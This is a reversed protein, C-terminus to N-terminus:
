KGIGDVLQRSVAALSERSALAEYAVMEEFPSVANELIPM